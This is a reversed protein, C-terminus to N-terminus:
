TDSKEENDLWRLYGCDPHHILVRSAGDIDTQWRRGCGPCMGDQPGLHWRRMAKTHTAATM